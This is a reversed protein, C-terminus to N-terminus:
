AQKQALAARRMRALLWTFGLGVVCAIGLAVFGTLFSGTADKLRGLLYTFTFAGACAFLNSFGTSTGASRSGMIEVPVSFLPGFYMQVFFSNIAIVVVLLVMNNLPVMLATTIALVVLSGVIVVVPSKLRDSVYGGVIGSPATLAARLAVILGAIQLSMGKEDVLLSPLWFATGMMVALRVYQIVGCVWMLRSRFLRFVAIINVEQKPGTVVPEKGLYLTVLATVIGIAAFFLFPFRWDFKTVLLPGLLDMALNGSFGGLLYLAMATARKQPPFWGTILSMGPAFLFARFIGSLSQNAVAQWYNTILGFSFALLTTGIAGVVLTRKAGFRDSLYGAPIQALAYFLTGIASLTGGQSFTLHLDSRILPLFLAIGGATLAQFSQCLIILCVNIVRDRQFTPSQPNPTM